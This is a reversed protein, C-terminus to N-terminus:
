SVWGMRISLAPAAGNSVSNESMGNVYIDVQAGNQVLAIHTWENETVPVGSDLLEYSYAGKMYLSSWNATTGSLGIAFGSSSDSRRYLTVIRAGASSSDPKVWAMISKTASGVVSAFTNECDVYDDVGDFELAGSVQGSVWSPGNVLTGDNNGASDHATTGAGEDFKWHAVLGNADVAWASRCLVLLGLVAIIKATRKMKTRRFNSINIGYRSRLSVATLGM